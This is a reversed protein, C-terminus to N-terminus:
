TLDVVFKTAGVAIVDGKSLVQSQGKSLKKGNVVTGNVGGEDVVRVEGAPGVVVSAHKHSVARDKPGSCIACQPDRGITWQSGPSIDFSFSKGVGEGKEIRLTIRASGVVQTTTSEGSTEFGLVTNGIRIVDGVKLDLSEVKEDGVWTGLHSGVDRLLYRGGSRVIEAHRRSVEKDWTLAVENAGDRGIRTVKKALRVSTGKQPGTLLFIRAVESEESSPLSSQIIIDGKSYLINDRLNVGTAGPAGSPDEGSLEGLILERSAPSAEASGPRQPPASRDKSSPTGPASAAAPAPSRATGAPSGTAVGCEPCFRKGELLDAGCSRCEVM